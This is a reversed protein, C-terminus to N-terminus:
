GPARLKGKAGLSSGTHGGRWEQELCGAFVTTWFWHQSSALLNM